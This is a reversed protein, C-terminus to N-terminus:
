RCGRRRGARACYWTAFDPNAALLAPVQHRAIQDTLIMTEWIDYAEPPIRSQSDKESSHDPM